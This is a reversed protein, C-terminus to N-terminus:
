RENEESCSPIMARRRSGDPAPASREASVARIPGNQETRETREVPEPGRYGDRAAPAARPGAVTRTDTM